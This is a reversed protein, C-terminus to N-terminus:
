WRTSAIEIERTLKGFDTAQHAMASSTISYGPAVQQMQERGSIARLSPENHRMLETAKPAMASMPPRSAKALATSVSGCHDYAPGIDRLADAQQRAM